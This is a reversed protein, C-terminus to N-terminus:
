TIKPGASSVVFAGTTVQYNQRTAPPQALCRRYFPIRNQRTSLGPCGASGCAATGVAGAPPKTTSCRLLPPAFSQKQCVQIGGNLLLTGLPELNSTRHIVCQRGLVGVRYDGEAVDATPQDSAVIQPRLLTIWLNGRLGGAFGSEGDVANIFLLVILVLMGSKADEQHEIMSCWPVIQGLSSTGSLFHVIPGLM